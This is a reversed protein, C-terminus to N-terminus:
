ILPMLILAPDSDGDSATTKSWSMNKQNEYLVSETNSIQYGLFSVLEKFSPRKKADYTWCSKMLFYIEDTAYFPQDMKFGCQLLKYFNANVPMGPYPNVGLSFIEWLLIGYSWIDSKITYIGDFISEPAMWKVPLRANGKVVYNSDNMVDRALGFDCIKAVKRNTILVNRAALDRHICMKSELFEMGKAVQYSFFLLDELTLINLDEENCKGTNQYKTEETLIFNTHGFSQDWNYQNKIIKDQDQTTQLGCYSINSLSTLARDRFKEDQNFNYYFTFNNDKIVDSWTKHFMERRTKLYNLLDGNPCFEFIIYIPGSTTCAGLLNVINEHHGIQTMMKLESMLADKEAADPNEKLMKVAVQLSVGSKSIGYATATVVKGFAGSGITQGIELNERPFEWKLDYELVSFDIYIYENDSPGVYQIMRLQSEYKAKKKYKNLIVLFVIVAAVLCLGCAGSMAPFILNSKEPHISSVVTCVSDVSNNACSCITFTEGSNELILSSTSEWAQASIRPSGYTIGKTIVEARHDTCNYFANNSRRWTWSPLPYGLSKCILRKSSSTDCTLEPKQFVNVIFTKNLQVDNNDIYFIVSDRPTYVHSCYKSSSKGNEKHLLVCPSTRSQHIWACRVPPYAKFEAVLCHEKKRDIDYEESTSDMDIYGNELLILPASKSSHATSTCTINTGNGEELRKASAFIIRMMGTSIYFSEDFQEIKMETNWYLKYKFSSYTAWCRIVFSDGIKAVLEPQSQNSMLDYKNVSCCTVDHGELYKAELEHEVRLVNDNDTEFFFVNGKKIKCEGFLCSTWHVEPKPSGESICRVMRGALTFYPKQPQSRVIVEIYIYYSTNEHQIQLKYKGSQKETIRILDLYVAASTQSSSVVCSHNNKQQLLWVCSVEAMINHQVMLRLSELVSVEVPFAAKYNYESTQACNLDTANNLSGGAEYKNGMGEEKEYNTVSYCSILPSYQITAAFIGFFVVAPRLLAPLHTDRYVLWCTWTLSFQETSEGHDAIIEETGRIVELEQVWDMLTPPVQSKWKRPIIARMASIFHRLIGKKIGSVPGPILSLLAVQPTNEIKTGTVEEYISFIQDWLVKIPPCSWWIHTM